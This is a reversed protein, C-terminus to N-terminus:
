LDNNKVPQIYVLDYDGDLDQYIVAEVQGYEETHLTFRYNFGAVVQMEVKNITYGSTIENAQQLLFDFAPQYVLQEAIPIEQWGGLKLDGEAKGCQTMLVCALACVIIM